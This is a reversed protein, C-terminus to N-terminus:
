AHAPAKHSPLEQAINLNPEFNKEADFFAGHNLERKAASESALVDLSDWQFPDRAFTLLVGDSVTEFQLCQVRKLLQEGFINVYPRGFYNLWFLDTIGQRPTLTISERSVRGDKLVRDRFNKSEFEADTFSRGYLSSALTSLAKILVVVKESMDQVLDKKWFSESFNVSISDAWRQNPGSGFWHVFSYFNAPKTGQFAYDGFHNSSESRNKQWEVTARKLDFRAKFPEWRGMSEFSLEPYIQKFATFFKSAVEYRISANYHM